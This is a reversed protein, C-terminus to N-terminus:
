KKGCFEVIERDRDALCTALREKEEKSVEAGHRIMAAITGKWARKGAKNKLKRCIRTEYHCSLCRSKLLEVCSEGSSAQGAGPLLLVTALLMAPITFATTRNM